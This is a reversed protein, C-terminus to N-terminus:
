KTSSDNEVRCRPAPGCYISFLADPGSKSLTPLSVNRIAVSDNQLQDGTVALVMHWAM